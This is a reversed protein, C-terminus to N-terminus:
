MVSTELFLGRQKVKCSVQKQLFAGHEDCWQIELLDKENQGSLPIELCKVFTSRFYIVCVCVCVCLSVLIDCLWKRESLLSGNVLSNM